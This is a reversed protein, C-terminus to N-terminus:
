KLLSQHMKEMVHMPVPLDSQYYIGLFQVICPHRSESLTNINSLFYDIIKPSKQQMQHVEKVICEKGQYKAVRVAGYSGRGLVIEIITLLKIEFKKVDDKLHRSVDNHLDRDM